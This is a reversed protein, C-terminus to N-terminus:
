GAPGQQTDLHSLYRHYPAFVLEAAVHFNSVCVGSSFDFARTSLFVQDTLTEVVRTSFFSFAPLFKSLHEQLQKPLLLPKVIRLLDGMCAQNIEDPINVFGTRPIETTNKLSLKAELFSALKHTTEIDLM